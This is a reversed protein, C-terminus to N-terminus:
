WTLVDVLHEESEGDDGVWTQEATGSSLNAQAEAVIAVDVLGWLEGSGSPLESPEPLAIDASHATTSVRDATPALTGLGSWSASFLDEAHLSWTGLAELRPYTAACAHDPSESLSVEVPEGTATFSATVLVATGDPDHGTSTGSSLAEFLDNAPAGAFTATSARVELDACPGIGSIDYTGGSCAPALAITSALAAFVAARRTATFM